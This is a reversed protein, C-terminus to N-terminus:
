FLRGAKLFYCLESSWWEARPVWYTEQSRLGNSESAEGCSNTQSRASNRTEVRSSHPHTFDTSRQSWAARTAWSHRRVSRHPSREIAERV